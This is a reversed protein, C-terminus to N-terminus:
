IPIEIIVSTGTGPRSDIKIKGNILNIRSQLNKLGSSDKKLLGKEYDFGQGNDEIMFVLEKAHQILQLTIETAKSHKLANNLLEQFVRFVVVELRPDFKTDKLSHDFYIRRNPDVSLKNVEEEIASALGFQEISPPLLNYSINRLESTISDIAAKSKAVLTATETMNQDRIKDSAVGLNIKVSSLLQGLGDHLDAAIRKREKEETDIIAALQGKQQQNIKKLLTKEKELAKRLKVEGSRIQEEAMRGDTTDRIICLVETKDIAIFRGEYNKTKGDKAKLDYDFQQIEQTEIAKEISILANKAL